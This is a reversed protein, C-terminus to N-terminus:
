ELYWNSYEFTLKANTHALIDKPTHCLLPSPWGVYGQANQASPRPHHRELNIHLYNGGQDEMKLGMDAGGGEAATDAGGEAGM